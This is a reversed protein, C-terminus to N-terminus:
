TSKEDIKWKKQNILVCGQTIILFVHFAIVVLGENLALIKQLCGYIRRSRIKCSFLSSSDREREKERKMLRMGLGISFHM